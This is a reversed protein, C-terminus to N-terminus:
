EDQLNLEGLSISSKIANPKWGGTLTEIIKNKNDEPVKSIDIQINLFATKEDSYELANFLDKLFDRLEKAKELTEGEKLTIQFNRHDVCLRAIKKLAKENPEFVEGANIDMFRSLIYDTVNHKRMHTTKRLPGLFDYLDWKIGTCLNGKTLFSLDMKSLDDAPVYSILKLIYSVDDGNLSEIERGKEIEQLTRCALNQRMDFSHPIDSLDDLANAVNKCLNIGTGWQKKDFISSELDAKWLKSGKFQECLNRLGDEASSRAKAGRFFNRIVSALHHGLGRNQRNTFTHLLKMAQKPDTTQGADDALDRISESAEGKDIRGQFDEQIFEAAKDFGGQEYAPKAQKPVKYSGHSGWNFDKRAKWSTRELLELKYDKAFSETAPQKKAKNVVARKVFYGVKRKGADEGQKEAYTVRFLAFAQVEADESEEGNWFKVIDVEKVKKGQLVGWDSTKNDKGKQPVLSELSDPLSSWTVSSM